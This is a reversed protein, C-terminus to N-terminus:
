ITPTLISDNSGRAVNGGEFLVEPKIPWKRPPWNFSTSSYPSLNGADAIPEYSALSPDTIRTKNTFAGVTLANWAQAPDQVECVLHTEPFGKWDNPEEVNGASLIILRRIDDSYGSALEDIQGSWSTPRGQSPEDDSNVAMCVIRTRDPAQIQALSIGRSTYHAWLRKPNVEPPPPLIKASEVIHNVVCPEHETLKDLLDGYAVTGAMLTGHGHDDQTGWDDEVAHCDDDHLLTELLRHGNNVGHDLVLVAIQGDGRFDARELLENVLDVQDRNEEEIFFTAVERAARFEAINDSLEILEELQKRNAFILLVSREPFTLRGQGVLIDRQSCLGVFSEIDGIDETSLWVEVWDPVEGPIRKPSDQWFSSELIAAKVDSISNILTANKPTTTGDRRPPNDEEAYATAKRLFHGSKDRPVFVTARTREEGEPGETKTNLLKINAQRSELSKLALDFGPESSFELYVGHRDSHAVAQRDIATRWANELSQRVHNAHSRRDHPRIRPAGRGRRPNSYDSRTESPGPLFLHPFHEEPM